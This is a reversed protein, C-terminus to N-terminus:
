RQFPAQGAMKAEQARRVQSSFSLVIRGIKEGQHLIERERVPNDASARSEVSKSALSKGGDDLVEISAIAENVLFSELLSEMMSSNYEYAPQALALSVLQTNIGLTQEFNDAASRRLNAYQAFSLAALLGLFSLALVLGIKPLLGTRKM